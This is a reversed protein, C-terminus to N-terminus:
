RSGAPRAQEHREDGVRHRDREPEVARGVEGRREQQARQDRPRDAGLSRRHSRGARRRAPETRSSMAPQRNRRLSGTRSAFVSWATTAWSVIPTRMPWVSPRRPAPTRGGPSRSARGDVAEDLAALAGAVQDAPEHDTQDAGSQRLAAHDDGAVRDEAQQGGSIASDPLRPTTRAMAKPMPMALMTKMMGLWVSNWSRM